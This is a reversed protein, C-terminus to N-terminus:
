GILARVPAQVTDLRRRYDLQHNEGVPTQQKLGWIWSVPRAVFFRFWGPFAISFLYGPLMKRGSPTDTLWRVETWFHAWTRATLSESGVAKLLRARRMRKQVRVHAARMKIAGARWDEFSRSVYSRLSEVAERDPYQVPDADIEALRSQMFEVHKLYARISLDLKRM